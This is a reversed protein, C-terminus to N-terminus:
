TLTICVVTQQIKKSGEYINWIKANKHQDHIVSMDCNAEVQFANLITNRKAKRQFIGTM